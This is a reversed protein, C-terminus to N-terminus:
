FVCKSVPPKHQKRAEANAQQDAKTLAGVMVPDSALRDRESNKLNPFSNVTGPEYDRSAQVTEDVVCQGPAKLKQYSNGMVVELTNLKLVYFTRQLQLSVM